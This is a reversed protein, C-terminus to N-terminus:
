KSPLADQQILQLLKNKPKTELTVCNGLVISYVSKM